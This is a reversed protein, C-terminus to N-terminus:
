RRLHAGSGRPSSIESVLVLGTRTHPVSRRLPSSYSYRHAAQHDPIHAGRPRAEITPGLSITLQPNPCHHHGLRVREAPVPEPSVHASTGSHATRNVASITRRAVCLPPWFVWFWGSTRTPM